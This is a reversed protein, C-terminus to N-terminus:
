VSEVYENLDMFFKIFEYLAWLPAYDYAFRRHFIGADEEIMRYTNPCAEGLLELLGRHYYSAPRGMEDFIDEANSVTYEGNEHPTVHLVLNTYAFEMVVPLSIEFYGDREKAGYESLLEKFDIM